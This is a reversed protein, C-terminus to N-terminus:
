GGSVPLGGTLADFRELARSLVNKPDAVEAGLKAVTRLRHLAVIFLDM